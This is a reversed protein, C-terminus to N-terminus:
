PDSVKINRSNVGVSIGRADTPSVTRDSTAVIVIRPAIGHLHGAFMFGDNATFPDSARDGRLTGAGAALSGDNASYPDSARDGALPTDSAISGTNATFSDSARAGALENGGSVSGDRATFTDSVRDGALAAAGAEVSGDRATFGDSARSGALAQTAGTAQISGDNATFPDSVRDGALDTTSALSGDNASYPDSVKSGRLDVAGPDIAGDNATFSDSPRDGHLVQPAGAADLSGDNATFTDSVRDGALTAAGAALAGDNASFADSARDGQLTATAALAGDNASYPDSVRDGALDAAGQSLAGDRAAYVDSVRSGQLTVAGPEIAGDNATLGDSVRDGQLTAVSALAGDNATLGDSARDGALDATAALSGDNAAFLDSAPSGQLDQAAAGASVTLTPTVTYTDLATDDDLVVRFEFVEGNAVDARVKLSWEDERYEDAALDVDDTPNEDDQIRGGGFDGTTKGAPATLQATTNEGSAAINASATIAVQPNDAASGDNAAFPDSAKSGALSTVSLVSGDRATFADSPRDGQLVVAGPHIAGDRVAMTDSPASGGLTAVALLAGVTAAFADSVKSGQLDQGAAALNYDLLVRVEDVFVQETGPMGGGEQNTVRLRYGDITGASDSRSFASSSFEQEATSLNATTFSELVNSASDLLEVLYTHPRSAGAHQRGRIFLQVTNLSGFDGPADDIEITFSDSATSTDAESGDDAQVNAVSTWSGASVTSTYRLSATAM